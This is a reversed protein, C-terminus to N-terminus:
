TTPAAVVLRRSGCNPDVVVQLQVTRNATNIAVVRIKAYVDSSLVFQGQCYPAQVAVAAIVDGVAIPLTSSFAYGDNPGETLADFAVDVKQIGVDRQGGLVSGVLKVPILQPGTGTFDVALDFTFADSVRFVAPQVGAITAASLLALANPAGLPAGNLSYLEVTTSVVPVLDRPQIPDSCAIASGLVVVLASLTRRRGRQALAVQSSSTRFVTCERSLPSLLPLKASPPAPNLRRGVWLM